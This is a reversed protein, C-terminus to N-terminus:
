ALFTDNEHITIVANLDHSHEVPVEDPLDSVHLLGLTYMSSCLLNCDLSETGPIRSLCDAVM